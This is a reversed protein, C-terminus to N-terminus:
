GAHFRYRAAMRPSAFTPFRVGELYNELCKKFRRRGPDITAGLVMGDKGRIALDITVTGLENDRGLEKEICDDYMEDLHNDMFRAVQEGTLQAEGGEATADGIEVPRVMAKEYSVMKERRSRRETSADAEDNEEDVEDLDGATTEAEALAKIEAVAQDPVDAGGGSVITASPYQPSGCAAGVLIAGGLWMVRMQSGGM